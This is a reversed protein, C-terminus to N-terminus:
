MKTKLELQLVLIGLSFSFFFDLFIRHLCIQSIQSEGHEKVGTNKREKGEKEFRKRM